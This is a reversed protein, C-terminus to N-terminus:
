WDSFSSGLLIMVENALLDGSHKHLPYLPVMAVGNVAFLTEGHGMINGEVSHTSLAQICRHIIWDARDHGDCRSRSRLMLINQFM